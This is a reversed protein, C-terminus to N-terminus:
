VKCLSAVNSYEKSSFKEKVATLNSTTLSKMLFCLEKACEKIINKSSDGIMLKSSFLYKYENICFYKM